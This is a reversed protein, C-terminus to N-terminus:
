DTQEDATAGKKENDEAEIIKIAELPTLLQKDPTQICKADTVYLQNVFMSSVPTDAFNLGKTIAVLFELLGFWDREKLLDRARKAYQGLCRCTNMHPNPIHTQCVEKPFHYNLIPITDDYHMSDANYGACVRVKFRKEEFIADILRFMQQRNLHAGTPIPGINYWSNAWDKVNRLNELHFTEITTTVYFEMKGMDARVLTAVKSNAFYEILQQDAECSGSQIEVELGVKTARMAHLRECCQSLKDEFHSIDCEIEDIKELVQNLNYKAYSVSFGKLFSNLSIRKIDAAAFIEGLIKTYKPEYRETLTKLLAQEQPTIPANEFLWPFYKPIFAQIVHFLPLTMKRTLIYASKHVKDVYVRIQTKCKQAVFAEVDNLRVSSDLFDPCLAIVDDLIDLVSFGTSARWCESVYINHTTDPRERIGLFHWYIDTGGRRAVTFADNQSLSNKKFWVGMSEGANMLRMYLLARTTALLSDDPRNMGMCDRVVDDFIRAAADSFPPNYVDNNFM